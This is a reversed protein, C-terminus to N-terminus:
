DTSDDVDGAIKQAWSDINEGSRAHLRATARQAFERLQASRDLPRGEHVAMLDQESLSSSAQLGRAPAYGSNRVATSPRLADSQSVTSHSLWLIAAAFSLTRLQILSAGLTRHGAEQRLTVPEHRIPHSFEIEPAFISTEFFSSTPKM